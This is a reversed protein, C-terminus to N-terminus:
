LQCRSQSGGVILFLMPRLAETDELDNRDLRETIPTPSVRGTAKPAFASVYGEREGCM